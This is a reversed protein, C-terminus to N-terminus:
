TQKRELNDLQGDGVAEHLENLLVELRDRKRADSGAPQPIGSVEHGVGHCLCDRAMKPFIEVVAQFNDNTNILFIDLRSM